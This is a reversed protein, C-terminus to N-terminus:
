KQLWAKEKLKNEKAERRTRRISSPTSDRSAATSARKVKKKGKGEPVEKPTPEKIIIGRKIPKAAQSTPPAVHTTAIDAMNIPNVVIAFVEDEDKSSSSSEEHLM